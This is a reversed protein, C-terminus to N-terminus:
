WIGNEMIGGYVYVYVEEEFYNGNEQVIDLKERTYLGEEVRELMDLGMLVNDNVKYIEGYVKDISSAPVITPFTGLSLMLYCELVGEGVYEGSELIYNNHGDKKLTGYVFVYHKNEM